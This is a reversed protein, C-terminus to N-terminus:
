GVADATAKPDFTKEDVEYHPESFPEFHSDLEKQLLKRARHIRSMITGLPCNMKEAVEKYSYGEILCLVLTDRFEDPLKKLVKRIKEMLYKNLLARNPDQIKKFSEFLPHAGKIEVDENSNTDIERLRKRYNNINTNKMIRYLWAKPHTGKEFKSFFRYARLLTEQLLDEADEPQRVMKYAASKIFSLNSLIVKEFEEENFNANQDRKTNFGKKHKKLPFIQISKIETSQCSSESQAGYFSGSDESLPFNPISENRTM